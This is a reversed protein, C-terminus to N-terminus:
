KKDNRWVVVVRKPEAHQLSDLLAHLEKMEKVLDMGKDTVAADHLGNVLADLRVEVAKLIM